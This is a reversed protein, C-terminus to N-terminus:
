GDAPEDAIPNMPGPTARRFTGAATILAQADADVLRTAIAGAGFGSFLPLAIAGIKAIALLAMVIEPTMPMYLAIVDGKCLGLDRLANAVRNVQKTLGGYTLTRTSGEEGEWVL